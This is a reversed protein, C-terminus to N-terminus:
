PTDEGAIVPVDVVRADPDPELTKEARQDAESRADGLDKMGDTYGDAYGDDYRDRGHADMAKRLVVRRSHLDSVSDGSCKDLQHELDYLRDTLRSV